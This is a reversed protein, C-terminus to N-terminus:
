DEKDAFFDYKFFRSKGEKEREIYPDEINDILSQNIYNNIETETKFDESNDNDEKFNIKNEDFREYGGGLFVDFDFFSDTKIENNIENRMSNNNNILEPTVNFQKNNDEENIIENKINDDNKENIPSYGDKDENENSSKEKESKTKIKKDKKSELEFLESLNNVKKNMSLKIINESKTEEPVNYDDYDNYNNYNNYTNYTNYTNYYSKRSNSYKSKNRERVKSNNYNNNYGYNKYTKKYKENNNYFSNKVFTDFKNYFMNTDTTPNTENNKEETLKINKDKEEIEKQQKFLPSPKSKIVKKKTPSYLKFEKYNEEEKKEVEKKNEEKIIEEIQSEKEKKEKEKEKEEEKKEDKKEKEKRENKEKEEKEKQEKKEKEGKEFNEVKEQISDTRNIENSKMKNKKRLKKKKNKNLNKYNVEDEENPKEKEIQENKEKDKIVETIIEKEPKILLKERNTYKNKLFIIIKPFIKGLIFLIFCIILILIVPIIKNLFFNSRIFVDKEIYIIVNLHFVQFGTNFYINKNTIYNKINPKIEIDIDLNENPSIVFEECQLIKLEGNECPKGDITMNKVSMKLNGVNKITITKIFKGKTKIETDFTHQNIEIIYNTKNFIYSNVLSNKKNKPYFTPEAGGGVGILKLPHLLTLNNKLFITEYISGIKNPRFAIPGLKGKKHPQITFTKNYIDDQFYFNQESIPQKIEPNISVHLFYKMYFNVIFSYIKEFFNPNKIEKSKDMDTYNKITLNKVIEIEKDFNESYLNSVIESKSHNIILEDKNRKKYKCFVEYGQNLYQKVKSNGHKYLLKTLEEKNLLDKRLYIINKDEPIIIYEFKKNYSNENETKQIFNCGLLTLEDSTEILEVEKKSLMNHNNIDEYENPTLVLKVGLIQDSPNFIEFYGNVIKGVQVFGFNIGNGNIITPKGLYLTTQIIRKGTSTDITIESNIENENNKIIKNWYKEREKWLYLEKYTLIKTFDVADSYKKLLSDVSPDFVLKLFKTKNGPIIEQLLLSPIIRSDNSKISSITVPLEMTSQSFLYITQILGPFGPIFKADSQHINFYGKYLQATNDIIFKTHNNYIIINKGKIASNNKVHSFLNLSLKIASYPYLTVSTSKRETQNKIDINNIINNRINQLLTNNYKPPEENGFYEYNELRITIMKNISIIKNITIPSSNENILFLFRQKLVYSVAYGFPFKFNMIKHSENKLNDFMNSTGFTKLCLALNASNEEEGCYVINIDNNDLQIPIYSYLSYTLLIPIYFFRKFHFIDLKEIEFMINVNYTQEDNKPNIVKTHVFKQNLLTINEGLKYEYNKELGIPASYKIKIEFNFKNQLKPLKQIDGSIIKEIKGMDTLFSYNVQVFPYDTSNTEIYISGKQLKGLLKKKANEFNPALNADFILYGYKIEENPALIINNGNFNQHFQIFINDYEFYVKGLKIIETGMNSLNLPILKRINYRSKSTIQCLGFNLTKPYIVIPSATSSIFVPVSLVINDIFKMQIIGYESTPNASYYKIYIIVKSSKPQIEFMSSSPLNANTTVSSGNPWIINMKKFPHIVKKIILVKDTPNFVKISYTIFKKIQTDVHYIPNLGYINDTGNIKIPILLVKNDNFEIYLTGIVPKIYDFLYFLRIVYTEKPTITRSLKLEKLDDASYPFAKVQYIDTKIDKIILDKESSPNIIHFISKQITCISASMTIEQPETKIVENIISNTKEYIITDRKIFKHWVYNHDYFFDNRAGYIKYEDTYIKYENNIQLNFMSRNAITESIKERNYIENYRDLIHDNILVTNRTNRIKSFNFNTNNLENLRINKNQYEPFYLKASKKISENFLSKNDSSSNNLLLFSNYTFLSLFIYLFIIRNDM